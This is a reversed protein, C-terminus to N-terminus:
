CQLPYGPRDYRLFEEAACKISRLDLMDMKLISIDLDPRQTKTKIEEIAAKAKQSSRAGMYVKANQQALHLM